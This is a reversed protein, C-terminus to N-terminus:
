LGSITRSSYVISIHSKVSVPKAASSVALNRVRDAPSLAM